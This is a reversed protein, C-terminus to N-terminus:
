PDEDAGGTGVSASDRDLLYEYRSDTLTELFAVLADIREDDLAPGTTLKDMSLTDPVEPAAWPAGTEPDIQRAAAKSNYKNYFLIVTRLNEFVGNHMYPGTVAVNRLTPVKFKGAEAPDEVAPNALLGLDPGAAGNVERAAANAPVGINHYSYDTFTEDAAMPSKRLQHCLNCNTFQQSFFLLRGLEEKDTLQVEGRLYRDYRSDFPAFRDTEEFAAIASTAARFVAEPDDPTADGYLASLTAGYRPNELIRAAAEGVDDLGMEIPNLPPGAAQEALGAARGDHFQGGIYIGDARRGFPPSFRAYAATPTNRDGLSQGDAGLSVARGALTPRPDTFAHDPDHCTACAQSRSKSLNVDFFLAEGFAEPSSYAGEEPEAAGLTGGTLLAAVLALGAGTGTRKM